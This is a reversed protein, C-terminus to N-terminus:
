GLLYGVIMGLIFVVSGGILLCRYKRWASTGAKDMADKLDQMSDGM